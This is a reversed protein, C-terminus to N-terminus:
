TCRATPPSRLQFVEIPQGHARQEFVRRAGPASATWGAEPSPLLVAAHWPNRAPTTVV